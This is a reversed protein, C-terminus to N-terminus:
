SNQFKFCRGIVTSNILINTETYIFDMCIVTMYSFYMSLSWNAPSVSTLSPKGSSIGCLGFHIWIGSKRREVYFIFVNIIIFASFSIELFLLFCESPLLSCSDLSPLCIDSSHSLYLSIATLHDFFTFHTSVM